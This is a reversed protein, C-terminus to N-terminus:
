LRDIRALYAHRTTASRERIRQTVETLVAQM